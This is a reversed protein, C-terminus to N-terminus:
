WLINPQLLKILLMVILCNFNIPFTRYKLGDLVYLFYLFVVCIIDHMYDHDTFVLNM